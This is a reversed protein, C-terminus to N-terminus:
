YGCRPDESPVRGTLLYDDVHEDVCASGKRYATHGDGNYSVLAADAFGGAMMDGWAYPTAPDYQTSIVLFPGAGQAAITRPESVAAAPWQACVADSWVLYPGFTPAEELVTTSARARLEDVPPASRDLCTVAYFADQTNSEYAGSEPDRHLRQDLMGLLKSGDGDFAAGLGGRLLAWDNPPAYLHYLVATVGLAETLERGEGAAIPATELGALFDQIEAVGGAEDDAQLPCDRRTPCDAVFRQLAIEFGEAQGASIEEASLQAPMAGDLVFRGVRDPFQEAYVSGLMTGYSKGLYNLREQKLAARLIDMDKAASVTDMWRFVQPSRQVCRAGVLASQSLLDEVEADDDPTPDTGILVDTEADTLCDVPTSGGVGRPDFGVIDYAEQVAPAVIVRAGRAYDVGSAGPGGPNVVLAQPASGGGAPLRVVDIELDGDAVPNAYNAPVRLTSCEFGDGCGAWRMQQGYYEGLGPPASSAVSPPASPTPDAVQDPGWIACGALMGAAALM